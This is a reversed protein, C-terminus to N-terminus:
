SFYYFQVFLGPGKEIFSAKIEQL